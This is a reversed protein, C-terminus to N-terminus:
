RHSCVFQGLGLPKFYGCNNTKRMFRFNNIAGFLYSMEAGLLIVPLSTVYCLSLMTYVTFHLVCLVEAVVAKGWAGHKAGKMCKKKRKM